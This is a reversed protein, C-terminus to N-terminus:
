VSQLIDPEVGLRHRRQPALRNGLHVHTPEQLHPRKFISRACTHTVPIRRPGTRRLATPISLAGRVARKAMATLRIAIRRRHLDLTAPVDPIRRRILAPHFSHAPWTIRTTAYLRIKQRHPARHRVWITGGIMRSATQSLLRATLHLQLKSLRPNINRPHRAWLSIWTTRLIIARTDPGTTGVPRTNRLKLQPAHNRAM